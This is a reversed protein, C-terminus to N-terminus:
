ARWGPAPRRGAGHLLRVPGPPQVRGQGLAAGTARAVRDARSEICGGIEVTWLEPPQVTTDTVDYAHLVGNCDGQILVDDVVVPSQWTPGPLRSSGGCPGPRGTSARAGDGGDDAVIVVDEHLAPTAWFGRSPRTQDASWVLPDDPKRPDLKVLQGVEQGPRQGARVGVGVYLFGEEDIM